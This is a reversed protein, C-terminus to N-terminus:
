RSISHSCAAMVVSCEWEEMTTDWNRHRWLNAFIFDAIKVSDWGVTFPSDLLIRKPLNRPCFYPVFM